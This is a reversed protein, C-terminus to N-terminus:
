RAFRRRRRRPPPPPREGALVAEPADWTLWRALSDPLEATAAAITPRSGPRHSDSAIVHVLGNDLLRRAAAGASGARRTLSGANVQVLAGAELLGALREPAAQVIANREPHALMATVGKAALASLQDALDAPWGDYPFELLAFKGAGGITFARLTEDDLHELQDLAIEGGQVVEIAVGRASLALRLSKLGKEMQSRTTPYRESVHPTAALVRVGSAALDRALELSEKVTAAGDDLGPLVHSHLDIAGPVASSLATEGGPERQQM